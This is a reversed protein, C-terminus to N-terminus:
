PQKQRYEEFAHVLFVINAAALHLAYEAVYKPLVVPEAGQGHGSTRNRVTLLGTELLGHLQTFENQLMSPILHKEFLIKLLAKATDKDKSYPWGLQDLITKMTSEFAKLADAVAEKYRQERFHRHANLFEEQAGKFRPDSLLALGPVVIEEHIYEETRKILDGNKFQYGIHHEEFRQNLEEIAEDIKTVKHSQSFMSPMSYEPDRRLEQDIYQFACVIFDLAKEAPAIQLYHICQEYVNDRSGEVLQFAGIEKTYRSFLTQWRPNASPESLSGPRVRDNYAGFVELLIYIVQKRFADPLTDYQYVDPKKEPQKQRKSWLPFKM